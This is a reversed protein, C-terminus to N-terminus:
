VVSRIAKEVVCGKRGFATFARFAKDLELEEIAGFAAEKECASKSCNVLDLGIKLRAPKEDFRQEQKRKVIM